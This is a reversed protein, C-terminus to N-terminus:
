HYSPGSFGNCLTHGSITRRGLSIGHGTQLFSTGTFRVCRPFGYQCHSSHPTWTNTRRCSPILRRSSTSLVLSCPSNTPHHRAFCLVMGGQEKIELNRGRRAFSREGALSLNGLSPPSLSHHRQISLSNNPDAQHSARPHGHAKVSTTSTPYSVEASPWVM